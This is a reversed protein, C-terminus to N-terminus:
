NLPFIKKLEELNRSQILHYLNEKHQAILVSGMYSWVNSIDKFINVANLFAKMSQDYNDVNFYAIGLNALCRPYNPKLSLAKMYTNIAEENMKSHALIAGLKNWANYDNPNIEVAKRFCDIAKDNQHHIFHSIGLAIWLDSDGKENLAATEMSSVVEKYFNQKLGEIRLSKSYYDEDDRDNMMEQRIMEYNLFPNNNDLYKNYSHHMKLYNKLHIMADFEDFENTCSIGLNLLADASFPDVEVAKLFCQIALDDRDNETHLKGLQVWAEANDPNEQTEAELVYRANMMDGKESFEKAEKITDEIL